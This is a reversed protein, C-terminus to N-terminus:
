QYLKTCALGLMAPLHLLPEWEESQSCCALFLPPPPLVFGLFWCFFVWDSYDYSRNTECSSLTIFGLKSYLKIM